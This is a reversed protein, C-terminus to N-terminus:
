RFLSKQEGTLNLENEIPLTKVSANNVKEEIPMVKVSSHVTDEQMEKSHMMDKYFEKVFIWLVYIFYLVNMAVIVISAVIKLAPSITDPREHGLYFLLGGWFTIWCCSLSMFELTHLMRSKKDEMDFPQGVLHVIISIFVIFLALFAQLDVVRMLTGFTAVSVISVKRVVITLEWWERDKRYGLYLLGYRVMTDHEYLHAKNKQIFVFALLPLGVVYLLLQPITVFFIYFLHRGVFCPEQLDNMLWRRGGINPCKLASLCLRTLMPYALFLLLVVTLITNNKVDKHKMRCCSKACTFKIMTWMCLTVVVIIPVMLAFVLQKGYFADATPINTLECDPFRIHWTSIM